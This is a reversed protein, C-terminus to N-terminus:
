QDRENALGGQRSLLQDLQARMRQMEMTLLSVQLPLEELEMPETRQLPLMTLWDLGDANEM